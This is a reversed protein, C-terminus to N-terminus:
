MAMKRCAEACQQCQEDQFRACEKACADCIQACLNCIEKAYTSGRSMFPISTLCIQSCDICHQIRKQINQFSSKMLCATACHECDVSCKLCAEICPQYVEHLKKM